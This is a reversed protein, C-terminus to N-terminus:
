DGRWLALRGARRAGGGRQQHRTNTPTGNHDYAIGAWIGARHQPELEQAAQHCANQVPCHRCLNAAHHARAEFAIETEQTARADFLPAYGRCAAGTLRTDIIDALEAPIQPLRHADSRTRQM